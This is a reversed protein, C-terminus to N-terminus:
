HGGKRGGGGGCVCLCMIFCSTKALSFGDRSVKAVDIM